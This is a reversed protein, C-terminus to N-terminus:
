RSGGWGDCVAVDHFAAVGLRGVGAGQGGLEEGVVGHTDLFADGEGM